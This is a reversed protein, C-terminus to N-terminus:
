FSFLDIIQIMLYIVGLWFFFCIIPVALYEVLIKRINRRKRMHIFGLM